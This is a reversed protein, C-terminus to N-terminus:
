YSSKNLGSLSCTEICEDFFETEEDYFKVTKNSWSSYYIESKPNDISLNVDYYLVQASVINDYGAGDKGFTSYYIESWNSKTPLLGVFSCCDSNGNCFTNLTAAQINYIEWRTCLKSEDANLSFKTNLINLDVVGTISDEGNDNADYVTGSNYSLNVTITKTENIPENILQNSAPPIILKVDKNSSSNLDSATLKITTNINDNSTSLALLNGSMSESVNVADSVDFSLIDNDEDVFYQSLNISLTKNLIFSDITSNWKPAHNIKIQDTANTQNLPTTTNEAAKSPVILLIAKVTLNKGDFATFITSANGYYDSNPVLTMLENDINITINPVAGYNYSLADNDEDTFYQALSISTTGDIVFSNIDSIWVPAMNDQAVKKEIIVIIQVVESTSDIGDSSIFTLTANFNNDSSPILTAVTDSVSVSLKDSNSSASYILSDDDKDIFYKSLDLTATGNITFSSPGDWEPKNNKKKKDKDDEKDNGKDNGNEKEDNIALGTIAITSNSTGHDANNASENLKSSDFVLYKIGNSEIYVRATGSNTVKGDIKLSKLEGINAPNWTYNGNSTVVLNLSESYSFQKIVFGTLSPGLVYIGFGAAILAIVLVIAEARRLSNQILKKGEKKRLVTMFQGFRGTMWTCFQGSKM